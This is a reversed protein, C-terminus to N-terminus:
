PRDEMAAFHPRGILARVAGGLAAANEFGHWQELLRGDTTSLRISGPMKGDKKFHIEPADLDLLSNAM